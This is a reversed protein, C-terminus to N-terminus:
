GPSTEKRCWTNNVYGENCYVNAYLLCLVPGLISSHQVQHKIERYLIQVGVMIHQSTSTHL